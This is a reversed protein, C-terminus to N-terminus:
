RAFRRLRAGCFLTVRKATNLLEALATLEPEAPRVM